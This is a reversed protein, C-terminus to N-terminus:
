DNKELRQMAVPEAYRGDLEMLSGHTGREVVRGGDIVYIADANQITSLRHTV